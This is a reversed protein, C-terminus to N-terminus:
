AAKEREHTEKQREARGSPQGEITPIEGAETLQKFRRLGERIEKSPDEGFLKVFAAGVIGGPPDYRVLLKVETGRDGPARTFQVSASTIVDSGEISKWSLVQNPVEETIEATWEVRKGMPGRAIWHSRRGDTMSVSELHDMIRPLNELNRWFPYLDEPQRDITVTREVLITRSSENRTASEM